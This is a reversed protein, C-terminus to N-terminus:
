ACLHHLVMCALKFPTIDCLQPYPPWCSFNKMHHLVSAHDHNHMCCLSVADIDSELGTATDIQKEVEVMDVVDAAALVDRALINENGFFYYSCQVASVRTLFAPLCCGTLLYQYADWYYGFGFDLTVSM